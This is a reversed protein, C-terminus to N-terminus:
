DWDSHLYLPNSGDYWEYECWRAAKMEKRTFHPFLRRFLPLYDDLEAEDLPLAKNNEGYSNREPPLPIAGTVEHDQRDNRQELGLM